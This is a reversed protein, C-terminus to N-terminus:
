EFRMKFRRLTESMEDTEGTQMGDLGIRIKQLFLLREIADEITADEPLNRLANLIMLRGSPTKKTAGNKIMVSM